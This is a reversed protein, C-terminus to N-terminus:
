ALFSFNIVRKTDWKTVILDDDTAAQGGDATLNALIVSGDASICDNLDEGDKYVYGAEPIKTEWGGRLCRVIYDVKFAPTDNFSGEEWICSCWAEGRQWSRWTTSNLTNNQERWLQDSYPTVFKEIYYVAVAQLTFIPKLPLQGAKDVISAGEADQPTELWMYEVERRINVNLTVPDPLSQNIPGSM